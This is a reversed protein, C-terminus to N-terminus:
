HYELNTDTHGYFLQIYASYFSDDYIYKHSDNYSVQKCHSCEGKLIEALKEGGSSSSLTIYIAGILEM